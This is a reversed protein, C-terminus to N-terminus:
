LAKKPLKDDPVKVVHSTHDLGLCAKVYAWPLAAPASMNSAQPRMHCIQTPM